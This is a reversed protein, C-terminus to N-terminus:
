KAAESLLKADLVALPMTVADRLQGQATRRGVRLRYDGAPIPEFSISRTLGDAAQLVDRAARTGAPYTLVEAELLVAHDPCEAEVEFREGAVIVDAAVVGIPFNVAYHEVPTSTLVGNIEDLVGQAVPLHGHINM